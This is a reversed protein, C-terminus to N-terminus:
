ASGSEVKARRIVRLRLIGVWLLSGLSPYTATPHM